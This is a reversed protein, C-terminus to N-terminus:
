NMEDILSDLNEWYSFNYDYDGNYVYRDAIEDINDKSLKMGRNENCCGEQIFNIHLIKQNGWM